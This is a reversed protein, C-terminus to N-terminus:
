IIEINKYSILSNFIVELDINYYMRNLDLSRLIFSIFSKKHVTPSSYKQTVCIKLYMPIFSFPNM